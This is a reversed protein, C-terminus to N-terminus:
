FNLYGITFVNNQFASVKQISGSFPKLVGSNKKVDDYNPVGGIFIEPNCKIQTFAGQWYIVFMFIFALSIFYIKLQLTLATAELISFYHLIFIPCQLCMDPKGERLIIFKLSFIAGHLASVIVIISCLTLLYVM